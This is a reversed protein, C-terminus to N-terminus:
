PLGLAGENALANTLPMEGFSLIPELNSKGCIRCGDIRAMTGRDNLPVSIIKM